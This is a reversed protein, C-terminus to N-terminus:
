TSWPNATAAPPNVEFAVTGMPTFNGVITLIGPSNGPAVTGAGTVNGTISGSGGLTAGAAVIVDSSISGNVLLRGSNVNTAGTYANSGSLVLTRSAESFSNLTIGYGNGGDGIAGSITATSGSNTISIISNGNLTVPGTVNAADIMTLSGYVGAYGTGGSLTLAEGTTTFVGLTGSVNVLTGNTLDGLAGSGSIALLGSNVTTVGSYTNAAGLNLQWQGDKILGGSGSIVGNIFGSHSSM